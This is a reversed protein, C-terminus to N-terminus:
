VQLTVVTKAAVAILSGSWAISHVPYGLPLRHIVSTTGVDWLLVDGDLAGTVLLGGDSSFALAEVKGTHGDLQTLPEGTAPDWLRVRKDDGASALLRGDPSFAVARVWDDHGILEALQETSDTDWLRVRDDDGASALLRGDPSFAVARVWDGHGALEALQETNETDWLRVKGDDGASALTHGEPSFAVARVWDGHGDFEALVQGTALDWLAVPGGRGAGALLRGDPSFAVALLGTDHGALETLQEDRAPNSLWVKGDDDAGALWRRDPSFAVARVWSEPDGAPGRQVTASPDWLRVADEGSSALLSGDPSFAVAVVEGSHGILQATREGTSPDWLRVIGDSGASALLGGDPSFAVAMTWLLDGIERMRLPEASLDWWRVWDYGGSALWRGDPSFAVAEAGFVEGTLLFGEDTTAPEWLRVGDNGVSALRRGDPSFAAAKVVAVHGVLETRVEGTDLDRLWVTREDGATALLRGDPSFALVASQGAGIALARREDTAPNWLDVTGARGAGALWRGDPSFAVSDVALTSGTSLQNGTAADWLRMSRDNGVSALRRGDPSFAVANVSGTHGTLTRLLAQSLPRLGWRHRLHRPPLLADLRDRDVGVDAVDLWCRMVAATDVERDAEAFLHAHRTLWGGLAGVAAEGPVADTAIAVDSEAAHAGHHAIRRALFAADTVTSRVGSFDGVMRLHHILHDWIYPEEGPLRWWGDRGGDPLLQRYGALLDEHLLALDPAQLILYDHQLDHFTVQGDVLQLLRAEALAALDDAPDRRWLRAIAAVPVATDPPFVALSLYAERLEPTLATTAVQMAKFTNAYPHDLFTRDGRELEAALRPWSMGGRVAAAVLAIALPVRGTATVVRDAEPPLATGSIRELLQRAAAEPLVEVQQLSAGVGTLARADRSTYLVRGRPGGARFGAAHAESWVDDVVLLVQRSALVERLARLGDSASRVDAGSRGLRRLLDVQVAVVDAREGVTVWYVGDPFRSRVRDDLAVAAALVSKGIGGQGHLGLAAANGTVGVAGTATSLVAEILPDLDSREVYGLPLPPVGDVAGPTGPVGLSEAAAPTRAPMAELGAPAEVGVMAILRRCVRVLRADREGPQDGGQDLPGDRGPDHAWQVGELLPEYEWLCERVLVPALRVGRAVLAPLEEEVIFRSALFDGSVLLVASGARDIAASLGRRWDGGVPLHPDAWLEMRRNRVLPALLVLLRDLWPRDAHSYSVFVVDRRVNPYQWGRDRWSLWRGAADPM